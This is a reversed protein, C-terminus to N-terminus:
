VPIGGTPRAAGVQVLLLHWEADAREKGLVSWSLVFSQPINVGRVLSEVSTQWQHLVTSMAVSTRLREAVTDIRSVVPWAHGCVDQCSM